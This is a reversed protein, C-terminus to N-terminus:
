NGEKSEQISFQSMQPRLRGLNIHNGNPHSITDQPSVMMGELNLNSDIHMLHKPKISLTTLDDSSQGITFNVKSQSHSM